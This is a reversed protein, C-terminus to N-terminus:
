SWRGHVTIGPKEGGHPANLTPRGRKAKSVLAAVYDEPSLIEAPAEQETAPSETLDQEM